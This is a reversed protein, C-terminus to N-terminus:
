GWPKSEIEERRGGAPRWMPYFTFPLLIKELEKWRASPNPKSPDFDVKQGAIFGYTEYLHKGVDTADIYAELDMENAKQVGWDMLLKGAGRRRFEPRVFCIDLFVHPKGMFTMRPTLFQTFLL